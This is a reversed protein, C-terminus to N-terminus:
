LGNSLQQIKKDLGMIKIREPIIFQLIELSAVGIQACTKLSMKIVPANDTLYQIDFKVMKDTNTMKLNQSLSGENPHAGYDICREYLKKVIGGIETNDKELSNLIRRIVFKKQVEEKYKETNNRELWVTGLEKNKCIYWGYVANELVGRLVMYTEPVQTALALRTAALFASNAKIFFLLAFWESSNEMCEIAEHFIDEIEVLRKFFAHEHVYTAYSNEKAIELFKTIADKGWEPPSIQQGLQRM